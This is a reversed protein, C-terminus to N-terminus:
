MGPAWAPLVDGVRFAGSQGFCSGVFAIALLTLDFVSRPVHFNYCRSCGCNDTFACLDQTVSSLVSRGFGIADLNGVIPSRLESRGVGPQESPRNLRPPTRQRSM